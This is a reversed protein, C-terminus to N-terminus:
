AVEETGVGVLAGVLGFALHEMGFPRFDNTLATQDCRSLADNILAARPLGAAKKNGAFLKPQWHQM